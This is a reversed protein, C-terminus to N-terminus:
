TASATATSLADTRSKLSDGSSRRIDDNTSDDPVRPSRNGDPTRCSGGSYGGAFGDM